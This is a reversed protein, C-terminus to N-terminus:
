DLKFNRDHMYIKEMEELTIGREKALKTLAETFEKKRIFNKKLFENGREKPIFNTDKITGLMDVPFGWGRHVINPENSLILFADYNKLTQKLDMHRTLYPLDKDDRGEEITKDVVMQYYYWFDVEEFCEKLRLYEFMDWFFSDAIVLLKKKTKRPKEWEFEPYVMPQPQLIGFLNMSNAIDNDSYKAVPSSDRATINLNPLDWGTESEIYKVLSDTALVTSYHSWHIGYQPFLLYGLSDKMKLFGPAFDLYNISREDFEKILFEKNTSDQEEKYPLYEPYYTAKGMAFGYMLFKDLGELSDQLEEMVDAFHKLREIGLFDKGYYNKVYAKEFLYNNKGALVGRTHINGFLSYEVQNHLRVFFPFLGINENIYNAFSEQFAGDFWATDTLPLIAAPQGGGNLKKTSDIPTLFEILPYSLLAMWVILVWKEVTKERKM